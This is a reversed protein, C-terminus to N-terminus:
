RLFPRSFKAAMVDGPKGEPICPFDQLVRECKEEGIADMMEDRTPSSPMFLALLAIQRPVKRSAVGCITLADM